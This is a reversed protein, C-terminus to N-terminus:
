NSLNKKGQLLREIIKDIRQTRTEERKASLVHNVYEKRNSVSLTQFFELAMPHNELKKQLQEPVEVIREEFDQQLVVDVFDGALKGIVARVAQVVVLVHQPSSKDMKAIIGRYPYGDFTAKIKIIGGKGWLEKVNFPVQIYTADMKEMGILQASFTLVKNPDLCGSGM